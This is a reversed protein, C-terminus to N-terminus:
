DNKSPLVWTRLGGTPNKGRFKPNLRSDHAHRPGGVIVSVVSKRKIEIRYVNAVDFKRESEIKM